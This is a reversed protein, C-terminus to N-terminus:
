KAEQLERLPTKASGDALTASFVDAAALLLIALLM